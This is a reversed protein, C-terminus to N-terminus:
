NEKYRRKKESGTYGCILINPKKINKKLKEITSYIDTNNQNIKDSSIQGLFSKSGVNFSSTSNGSWIGVNSNNM